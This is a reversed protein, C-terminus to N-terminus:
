SKKKSKLYFLGGVILIIFPIGGYILTNQIPNKPAVLDCGCKDGICASPCLAPKSFNYIGVLVFWIVAIVLIM